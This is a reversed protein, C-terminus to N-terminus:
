TRLACWLNTCDIGPTFTTSVSLSVIHLIILFDFMFHKPINCGKQLVKRYIERDAEIYEFTGLVFDHTNTSISYLGTNHFIIQLFLVNYSVTNTNQKKVSPENQGCSLTLTVKKM